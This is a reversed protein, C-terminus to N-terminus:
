FGQRASSAGDAEAGAKVPFWRRFVEEARGSLHRHSVEETCHGRSEAEGIDQTMVRVAARSEFGSGPGLGPRTAM